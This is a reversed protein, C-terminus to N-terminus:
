TQVCKKPLIEYLRNVSPTVIFLFLTLARPRGVFLMRPAEPAMQGGDWVVAEM